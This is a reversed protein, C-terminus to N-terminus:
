SFTFTIPVLTQGFNLFCSLNYFFGEKELLVFLGPKFASKGWTSLFDIFRCNLFASYIIYWNCIWGLIGFSIFLIYFTSKAYKECDRSRVRKQNCIGILRAPCRRCTRASRPRLQKLGTQGGTWGAPRGALRM